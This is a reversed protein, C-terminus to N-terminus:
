EEKELDLKVKLVRVGPGDKIFAVYDGEKAKLADRAEKPFAVRDRSKVELIKIINGMIRLVGTPLAM